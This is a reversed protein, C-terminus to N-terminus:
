VFNIKQLLNYIKSKESRQLYLETLISSTTGGTALGEHHGDTHGVFQFKQDM